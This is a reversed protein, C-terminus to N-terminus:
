GAVIPPRNQTVAVTHGCTRRYDAFGAVIRVIVKMFPTALRDPRLNNRSSRVDAAIGTVFVVGRPMFGGHRMVVPDNGRLTAFTVSAIRRDDSGATITRQGAGGIDISQMTIITFEAVVVGAGLQIRRGNTLDNRLSYATSRDAAGSAMSVLSCIM